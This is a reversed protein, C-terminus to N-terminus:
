DALLAEIDKVHDNRHLARNFRFHTPGAEIAAVLEPSTTAIETDAERAASLCLAVATRPDLAECLPKLAENIMESDVPSEDLDREKWRRLLVRVRQEWFAMHAFLAGVQWGYPTVRALDEDTLRAALEELRLRSADNIDNYSHTM